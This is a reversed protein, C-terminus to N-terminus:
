QIAMRPNSRASPPAVATEADGNRPFPEEDSKAVYEALLESVDYHGIIVSQPKITKSAAVPKDIEDALERANEYRRDAHALCRSIRQITRHDVKLEKLRDPFDYPPRELQGVLTQYWIVGLAYVDAQAPSRREGPQEGPPLYMSNFERQSVRPIPSSCSNGTLSVWDAEDIIGGVVFESIKAEVNAPGHGPEFRETLLFKDPNLCEHYVLRDHATALGAIVDRILDAPQAEVREDSNALLWNKLSPGRVHEFDFFWDNKGLRALHFWQVIHADQGLKRFANPIPEKKIRVQDCESENTFFYFTHQEKKDRSEALWVEGFSTVAILRRLIFHEYDDAVPEGARRLTPFRSLFSSLESAFSTLAEKSPTRIRLARIVDYIPAFARSVGSPSEQARMSSGHMLDVLAADVLAFAEHDLGAIKVFQRVLNDIDHRDVVGLRSLTGRFGAIKRRILSAGLMGLPSGIYVIWHWHNYLTSLNFASVASV